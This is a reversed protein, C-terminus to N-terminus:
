AGDVRIVAEHRVPMSCSAAIFCQRHARDHLSQATEVLAPDAITVVPRLLVSEFRGGGQGDLVLTGSAEDTYDTVQVGSRACLALYALLHCASLSAVLLDEPNHRAPNGRFQADASGGIDPKGAISIRYDRGYAAYAATGTGLNGTWQIATRYEHTRDHTM